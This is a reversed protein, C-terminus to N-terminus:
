LDCGEGTCRWGLRECQQQWLLEAAAVAELLSCCSFALAVASRLGATGGGVGTGGDTGNASGSTLSDLIMAVVSHPLDHLGLAHAEPVGGEGVAQACCLTLRQLEQM